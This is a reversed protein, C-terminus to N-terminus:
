KDMSTSLPHTPRDTRDRLYEENTNILDSEDLIHQVDSLKTAQSETKVKRPKKPVLTPKSSNCVDSIFSDTEFNPRTPEYDPLEKYQAYPGLGLRFKDEQVTGELCWSPSSLVEDHGELTYYIIQKQTM